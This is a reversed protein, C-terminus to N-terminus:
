QRVPWRYTRHALPLTPSDSRDARWSKLDVKSSILSWLGWPWSPNELSIEKGLTTKENYEPKIREKGSQDKLSIRVKYFGPKMGLTEGESILIASGDPQTTGTAPKIMDAVFPEPEFTVLAGGIPNGRM